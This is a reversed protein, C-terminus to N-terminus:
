FFKNIFEYIHDTIEAPKEQNIFHGAGQIVVVEELKPVDGKFGGGHIYDQIGKYHYALDQDGVIFKAPVEIKMGNWTAALEWNRCRTTGFDTVVDRQPQRISLSVLGLM